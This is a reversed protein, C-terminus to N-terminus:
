DEGLERELEAELEREFDTDGDGEHEDDTGTPKRSSDGEDTTNAIPLGNKLDSNRVSASLVAIRPRKVMPPEDDSDNSGDDKGTVDKRKEPRQNPTVNDTDGDRATSTSAADDDDDDDTENLFAEVEDDAANWDFTKLDDIPSHNPDITPM